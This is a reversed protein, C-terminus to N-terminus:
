WKGWKDFIDKYINKYIRERRQIIKKPYIKKMNKINTKMIVYKWINEISNVFLM